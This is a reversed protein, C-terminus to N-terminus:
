LFFLPPCFEIQPFYKKNKGSIYASSIACIQVSFFLFYLYLESGRSDAPSDAFIQPFGKKNKGSIYAYSIGCIQV